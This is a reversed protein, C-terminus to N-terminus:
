DKETKSLDAVQAMIDEFNESLNEQIGKWIDSSWIEFKEGMGIIVIQDKLHAYEKLAKPILIRNASDLEVVQAASLYFRKFAQVSANLQPLNSMKKELKLWASYSFADLCNQSNYKSNTLVIRTENKRRHRESKENEMLESRLYSPLALRSKQDLKLDFRGRFVPDM